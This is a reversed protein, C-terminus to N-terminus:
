KELVASYSATAGSAAGREVKKLLIHWHLLYRARFSGATTLFFYEFMRRVREGYRGEHASWAQILNRHWARLTLVYSSGFEDTVTRQFLGSAAADIQSLCPVVGGPFIYKDIWAECNSHSKHGGVSEILLTGHPELAGHAIELFKRYNKRGVHTLMALVAIKNFRGTIDRYDCKRVEVSAGKCYERAFAIQEDTINISVVECGYHTAAYRAFECWGGGIDLLRDGPQLDLLKCVKDLKLRQAEDLDGTGSYYGCSYNKHKGLFGFFMENGMAYHRDAVRLSMEKSQQNFVNDRLNPLLYIPMRLSFKYLGSGIMRSAMEELDDCSWWGDMYSEGLGLSGKQLVARYFRDDKVSIDCPNQGNIAVGASAFAKEVIVRAAHTLIKM